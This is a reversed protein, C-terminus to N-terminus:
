YPNKADKAKVDRNATADSAAPIIESRNLRLVKLTEAAATQLIAVRPVAKDCVYGSTKDHLITM